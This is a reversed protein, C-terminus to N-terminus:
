DERWLLIAKIDNHIAELKRLRLGEVNLMYYYYVGMIRRDYTSMISRRLTLLYM